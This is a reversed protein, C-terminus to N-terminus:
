HAPQDRESMRVDPIQLLQAWQAPAPFNRVHATVRKRLRDAQLMSGDLSFGM